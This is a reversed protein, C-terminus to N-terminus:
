KNNFTFGKLLVSIETQKERAQKAHIIYSYILHIKFSVSTYRM